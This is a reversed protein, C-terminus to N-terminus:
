AVKNMRREQPPTLFIKLVDGRAAAVAFGVQCLMDFLEEDSNAGFALKLENWRTKKKDILQVGFSPIMRM